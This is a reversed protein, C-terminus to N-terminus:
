RKFPLPRRAVGPRGATAPMAPPAPRIVYVTRRSASWVREFQARDYTVRVQRNDARLHSAPDNVVPRGARDFGALVLLHGGTGYGAGALESSRFSASLVLPVGVAIFPEAAALDPLRTVWGELRRGGLATGLAAYATNFPWNGTGRYAADYVQRAAVDVAADVPPSVWAKARATPGAGFYDLVMATATASCWSEGGGGWQPYHGAHIEQSYTPVPLTRVTGAFASTARAAAASASVCAGVLRVVPTTPAGSRRMLTVRVQWGRYAIGAGALLTDTSVEGAPSSQGPVSTRRIAGGQAVDDACWRGMVFWASFTGAADHGRASIEVWTGRPTDANWSAILESWAFPTAVVPSEWAAYDYRVAPGPTNYDSASPSSSPSM